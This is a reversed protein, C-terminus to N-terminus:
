MGAMNNLQLMPQLIAVVIFLVVGAMAVILAPEFLGLAMGVQMDLAREQNDAAQALMNDLEGSREGSAIMHLMMPPLLRLETLAARLSSGERVHEAAVLLQQEVYRNSSVRAATFLSDLLPVHSATLISLTRAFRATNKERSVRGLLPLRLVLRDWRLRRGSDRLLLRTLVSACLLLGAVGGGGAQAADSLAILLRTSAPLTQGLHLLQETVTPVVVTLLIAIVCAAVSMLILPYLMAQTLRMNMRQRQGTYEALRNLVRDLHGSTEGAAVMACFLEDFIHPFERLSESLTHGAQIRSRLAMAVGKLRLKESQEGVAQLCEELPISAQVLTALQRTFLALEGASITRAFPNRWAQRRRAKEEPNHATLQVPILEQQRLLQRAHRPSEAEILGRCRKGSRRLAHYIFRAM